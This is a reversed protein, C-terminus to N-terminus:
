SNWIKELVWGTAQHIGMIVAYVAAAPLFLIQMVRLFNRERKLFRKGEETSLVQRPEGPNRPWMTVIPNLDDDYQVSYGGVRLPHKV